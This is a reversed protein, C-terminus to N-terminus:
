DKIELAVPLAPTVNVLAPKCEVSDGRRSIIIQVGAATPEIERGMGLCKSLHVKANLRVMEGKAKEASEIIMKSVKHEGYGMERLIQRPDGQSEYKILIRKARKYRKTVEMKEYGAAIMANDITQDEVVFSEIFQLENENLPAKPDFTISVCATVPSDNHISLSEQKPVIVLPKIEPIPKGPIGKPLPEHPPEHPPAVVQASAAVGPRLGQMADKLNKDM